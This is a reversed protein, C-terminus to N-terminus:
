ERNLTKATGKLAGCFSYFICVQGMQCTQLLGSAHRAPNALSHHGRTGDADVRRREDLQLTLM